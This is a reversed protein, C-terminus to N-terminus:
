DNNLEVRSSYINKMAIAENSLDSTVLSMTHLAICFPWGNSLRWLPTILHGQSYRGWLIEGDVMCFAVESYNPVDKSILITAMM